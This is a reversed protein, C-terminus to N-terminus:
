WIGQSSCQCTVDGVGELQRGASKGSLLLVAVWRCIGAEQKIWYVDVPATSHTHVGTQM